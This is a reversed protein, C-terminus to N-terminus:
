NVTLGWPVLSTRSNAWADLLHTAFREELMMLAAVGFLLDSALAPEARILGTVMRDRAIEGHRKDATVHVDYFRRGEPGIGFRELARSYRGM